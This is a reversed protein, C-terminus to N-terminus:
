RAVVHGGDGGHHLKALVLPLAPVGHGGGGDGAASDQGHVPGDCGEEVRAVGPM